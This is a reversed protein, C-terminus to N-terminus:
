TRLRERGLVKLTANRGARLPPYLYRTLPEHRFMARVLRNWLGSRTSLLALRHMAEAGHYFHGDMKVAMGEDLDLGLAEAESVLPHPERVNLLAVDGAADRLRLMKVYASCFPCEGDYLIAIGDRSV